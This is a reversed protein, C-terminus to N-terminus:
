KCKKLFSFLTKSNNDTEFRRISNQFKSKVPKKDNLLFINNEISEDRAKIEHMKSPQHVASEQQHVKHIPIHKPSMEKILYTNVIPEITAKQTEQNRVVFSKKLEMVSTPKNSSNLIENSETKMKRVSSSSDTPSSTINISNSKKM